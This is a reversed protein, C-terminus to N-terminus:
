GAALTFIEVDRLVWAQNIDTSTVLMRAALRAREINAHDSHHRIGAVERLEFFVSITPPVIKPAVPKSKTPKPQPRKAPRQPKKKAM